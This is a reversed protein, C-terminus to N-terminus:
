VSILEAECGSSRLQVEDPDVFSGFPTSAQTAKNLEEWSSEHGDENRWIRRLEQVLWTGMCNRLFRVNGIGGENAIGFAGAEESTIPEPILQGM